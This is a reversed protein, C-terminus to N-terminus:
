QNHVYDISRCIDSACEDGAILTTLFVAMDIGASVGASTIYKGDRVYRDKRVDLGYSRLQEIRRWHTTCTRGTLLGTEALVIAGSCVSVTWVSRSDVDRIWNIISVDKILDSIGLGGPILLIDTQTVEDITHAVDLGLGHLDRYVRKEKGTFRCRMGPIRTLVEYPGIVDLATFGDFLLITLDTTPGM